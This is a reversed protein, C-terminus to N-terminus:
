SRKLKQFLNEKIQIILIFENEDIVQLVMGILRGEMLLEITIVKYLGDNDDKYLLQGPTFGHSEQNVVMTTRLVDRFERISGESFIVDFGENDDM